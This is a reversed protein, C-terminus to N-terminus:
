YSGLELIGQALLTYTMEEESIMTVAKVTVYYEHGVGGSCPPMYGGAKGFGSARHEQVVFFGEPLDFTNSPFSPITVDSSEGTIRFGVKGHGGNDMPRYDRDSFELIIADAGDPIDQVLISPAAPDVGGNRECQQGEPINVGDWAPDALSVRLEAVNSLDETTPTSFTMPATTETPPPPTEAPPAACSALLVLSICGLVLRNIM